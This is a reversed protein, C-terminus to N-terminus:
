NMLVLYLFDDEQKVTWWKERLSLFNKTSTSADVALFNISFHFLCSSRKFFRIATKPIATPRDVRDNWIISTEYSLARTM